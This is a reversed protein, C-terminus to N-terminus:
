HIEIVNLAALRADDSTISGNMDLDAACFVSYENPADSMAFQFITEVDLWTVYGDDDVDGNHLCNPTQAHRGMDVIGDDPWVGTETSRKNMLQISEPATYSLWISQKSGSDICPSM